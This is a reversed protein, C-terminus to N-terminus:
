EGGGVGSGLVVMRMPQPPLVEFMPVSSLCGPAAHCRGVTLRFATSKLRASPLHCGASSPPHAAFLRCVSPSSALPPSLHVRPCIEKTPLSSPQRTFRLPLLSPPVLAMLQCSFTARLGLYFPVSDLSGMAATRPNSACWGIILMSHLWPPRGLLFSLFSLFMNCLWYKTTSPGRKQIVSIKSRSASKWHIKCGAM